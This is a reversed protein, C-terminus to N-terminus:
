PWTVDVITVYKRGTRELEQTSYALAHGTRVDLWRDLRFKGVRVAAGREFMDLKLVRGCRTIRLHPDMQVTYVFRPRNSYSYMALLAGTEADEFAYCARNGKHRVLVTANTGRYQGIGNYKWGDRLRNFLAEERKLMKKAEM